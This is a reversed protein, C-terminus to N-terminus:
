HSLPLGVHGLIHHPLLDRTFPPWVMGQMGNVIWNIWAWATDRDSIPECTGLASRIRQWGQPPHTPKHTLFLRVDQNEALSALLKFGASVDQACTHGAQAFTDSCALSFSLPSIGSGLFAFPASAALGGQLLTLSMLPSKLLHPSRMQDSRFHAPPSTSDFWSWMLTSRGSGPPSCGAM